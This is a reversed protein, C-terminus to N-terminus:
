LGIKEDIFEMAEPETSFRHLVKDVWVCYDGDILLIVYGKYNSCVM